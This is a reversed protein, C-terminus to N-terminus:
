ISCCYINESTKFTPFATPTATTPLRTPIRTTPQQTPTVTPRFSVTPAFSPSLLQVEITNFSSYVASTAGSASSLESNSGAKIQLTSTFLGGAQISTDFFQTMQSYGDAATLYQQRDVDFSISYVLDVTSQATKGRLSRVVNTSSTSSLTVNFSSRLSPSSVLCEKVTAVVQSNAEDSLM